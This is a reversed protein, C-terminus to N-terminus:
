FAQLEKAAAVIGDVSPLISDELPPSYAYHTDATTVRRIPADLWQFAQENIRAAIEAGLGCFTRDEHVIVLKGTKKVTTLVADFDLPKVTRLDLVDVSCNEQALREAAELCLHLTPGYTVISVDKGERRLLAQGIPVAEAVRRLRAKLRRYLYKYELYLVPNPDHIASRLLGSADEVTAPAVIKIGPVTLFFNEVNQSHFLGGRIRGGSPCRVTMPVGIKGAHRYCMTAASNALQDFGCSIFDAFQMEAVPRMGMIAAGVSGGVILSESIPTDIVRSEGFMELLGKTVGFAGGQVAIDEGLLLVRSDREMEYILTSRIAELYTFEEEPASEIAGTVAGDSAAANASSAPASFMPAGYNDDTIPGTGGEGPGYFIATRAAEPEPFPSAEAFEVAEDIRARVDNQVETRMADVDYGRKELYLEWLEIPDRAAWETVDDDSRYKAPDHESHGRIRYTVCEILTSGQGTRARELAREVADLVRNLDNGHTRDRHLGYADAREAVTEVPMQQHLPTSFALQNNECIYVVPLSHIGAFNLAEHFDGRSTSGEGFLAVAVRPEGRTKFAQACGTAVPLTAGLMSTAGFVGLSPDGTHLFSDRGGSLGTARGLIQAMLVRPEVGRLLFVGMDRHLPFIVDGAQMAHCAGVVIAEQGVGSYVGGIVKNQRHLTAVREDFLRVLWLKAYLERDLSKREEPSVQVAPSV